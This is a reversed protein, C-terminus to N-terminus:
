GFKWLLHMGYRYKDLAKITASVDHRGRLSSALLVSTTQMFDEGKWCWSAFPRLTNANEIVHSAYHLKSVVNFLPRAEDRYFDELMIMLQAKQNFKQRLENAEAQPVAYYGDIPQYDNLIKEIERDLKFVLGIRRHQVNEQSSLRQWVIALTPVLAKIQGAKGKIKPFGSKRTFQTLKSFWSLPVKSSLGLQKQIRHVMLGIRKFNSLPDQPMIIYCLLYLVSGLFFHMYGLYKIHMLDPQVNLGTISPMAFLPCTNDGHEHQWDHTSLVNDRWAANPRFDRWSLAGDRTCRCLGCPRSASGWHPTQLFKNQYDLDGCIAFLLCHWGGAIHTGAKQHEPSGRAYSVGRHDRHPWRGSRLIGFSWALVKWFSDLTGGIGEIFQQPNCAWILLLSEKTPLMPCLLSFWSFVVAMKCWVKGRGSMPVEDGHMGIPIARNQLPSHGALIPSNKCQDWFSVVDAEGRPFFQKEFKDRHHAYLHAFIEHPLVLAADTDGRKSPIHITTAPPLGSMGNIRRMLDRHMNNPHRGENGIKSLFELDPFTSGGKAKEVDQMACSAIHQIQQPSMRGWAFKQHLYRCLVSESVNRNAELRQRVGGRRIDM